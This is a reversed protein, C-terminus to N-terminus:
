LYFFTSESWFVTNSPIYVRLIHCKYPKRCRPKICNVTIRGWDGEVIVEIIKIRGKPNLYDRDILANKVQKELTM